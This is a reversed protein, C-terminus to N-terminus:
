SQDFRDLGFSAFVKSVQPLWGPGLLIGGVIAGGLLWWRNQRVFARRRDVCQWVRRSEQEILRRHQESQAIILRKRTSLDKMEEPTGM